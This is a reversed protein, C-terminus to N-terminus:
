VSALIGDHRIRWKELIRDLTTRTTGTGGGAAALETPQDNAYLEAAILKVAHKLAPPVSGANAYGAAFVITVAAPHDQTEPWSEGSAPEITGPEHNVDAVYDAADLTQENGNADRYVISTVSRLPAFPLVIRRDEADPFGRLRVTKSAAVLGRWTDREIEERATAILTDLYTDQDSHAIRLHAKLEATTIPEAM